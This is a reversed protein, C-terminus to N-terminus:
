NGIGLAQDLASYSSSASPVVQGGVLPTLSGVGTLVGPFEDAVQSTLSNPNQLGQAVAQAPTINSNTLNPLLSASGIPNAVIAPAPLGTSTSTTSLLRFAEYAVLAVVGWVFIQLFNNKM